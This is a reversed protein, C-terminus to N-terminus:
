LLLSMYSRVVLESHFWNVPSGIAPGSALLPIRSGYKADTTVVHSSQSASCGSVVTRLRSVPM